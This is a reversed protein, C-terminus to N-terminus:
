IAVHAYCWDCVFFISLKALPILACGSGSSPHVSSERAFLYLHSAFESRCLQHIQRFRFPFRTRPTPTLTSVAFRFDVHFVEGRSCLSLDHPLVLNCCSLHIASEQGPLQIWACIGAGTLVARSFFFQLGPYYCQCWSNGPTHTHSPELACVRV